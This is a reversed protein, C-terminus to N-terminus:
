KCVFKLKSSNLKDVIKKRECGLTKKFDVKILDAIEILKLFKADFVFDDLAFIYGIEKLKKCAEIVDETPEIDELIEIIVTEPSLL